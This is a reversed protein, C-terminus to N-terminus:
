CDGSLGIYFRVDFALGSVGVVGVYNCFDWVVVSRNGDVRM